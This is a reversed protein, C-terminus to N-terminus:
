FVSITLNNLFYAQFLLFLRALINLQTDVQTELIEGVSFKFGRDIAKLRCGTRQDHEIHLCTFYEGHDVLRGIVRVVAPAHINVAQAITGHRVNDLGARGHFGQGHCGGQLATFKLRIGQNIGIWAVQPCRAFCEGVMGIVTHQIHGSNEFFDLWTPVV